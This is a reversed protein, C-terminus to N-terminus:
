AGSGRLVNIIYKIGRVALVGTHFAIALLLVNVVTNAPIIWNWAYIADFLWQIAESIEEPFTATPLLNLFFLLISGFFSIIASTIM